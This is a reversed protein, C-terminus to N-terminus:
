TENQKRKDFYYLQRSAQKSAQQTSSVNFEILNRPIATAAAAALGKL